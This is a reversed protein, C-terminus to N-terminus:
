NCISHLCLFDQLQDFGQERVSPMNCLMQYQIVISYCMLSDHLGAFAKKFCFLVRQFFSLRMSKRTKSSCKTLLMRRFHRLKSKKACRTTLTEEFEISTFKLCSVRLCADKKLSAIPKKFKYKLKHFVAVANKQRHESIKTASIRRRTQTKESKQTTHVNM